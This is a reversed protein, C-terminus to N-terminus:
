CVETFLLLFFDLYESFQFQHSSIMWRPGKESLLPCHPARYNKKQQLQKTINKSLM